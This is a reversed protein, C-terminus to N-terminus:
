QSYKLPQAAQKQNETKKKNAAKQESIFHVSPTLSYSIDVVKRAATEREKKWDILVASSKLEEIAEDVASFAHKPLKYGGLLGSDRKITSYKIVFPRDYSAFNYKTTLYQILWRSLQMKCNMLRTYNFQRYSIEDISRTVLPHFQVTWKSAPDMNLDARKVVSLGQIYPSVGVFDKEDSAAAITINSYALIQLSEVLQYYSMTHGNRSLEERLMHLSFRVGSAKNQKDFYGKFQEAAIKRLAQEVIEEKASPYYEIEGGNKPEIRAPRIIAILEQGNHKFFVKRLPLFGTEARIKNMQAASVSYKPISDWFEIANSLDKKELGNPNYFSQFLDLQENQFATEDISSLTAIDKTM